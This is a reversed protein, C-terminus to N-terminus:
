ECPLSDGETESVPAASARSSGGCACGSITRRLELLVLLARLATTRSPAMRCWRLRHRAADGGASEDTDSSSSSVTSSLSSAASLLRTECISAM